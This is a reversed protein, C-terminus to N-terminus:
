QNIFGYNSKGNKKIQYMADDAMGIIEDVRRSSDRIIAIGISVEVSLKEGVDCVFGGKLKDLIQQSVRAPDNTESNRVCIVFEDGGYRGAIGFQEIIENITSATFKLVQDGTAHSYNDNYQKFDDVDVFLIAFENKRVSVLEIENNVLSEVTERNYLGTLADYSARTTLIKESKKARDIDVIVGVVKVIKNDLNKISATRLLVWIYDGYINKWRYESKSLTMGKALRDLDAKYNESDEPHVKCKLLFSDEFSDSPARYSFKKNFNNSFHVENTHFNWEFIINDSMEIITRYRGESVIVDDLLDNFVQAILGYENNSNINIRAEHDGRRIKILTEEIIYLPKTFLIIIIIDFILLFIGLFIVCNVLNSRAKISYTFAKDAEGFTIVSWGTDGANTLFAIRKNRGAEYTFQETGTTFERDVIYEKFESFEPTKIEALNGSYTNDLLQKNSDVLLIRGNIPFASHTFLEKVAHNEFIVVITYKGNLRMKSLLKFDSNNSPNLGTCVYMTHDVTKSYWATTVIDKFVSSTEIVPINNNDYVTINHIDLNSASNTIGEEYLYAKLSSLAAEKALNYNEAEVDTEEDTDDSSKQIYRDYEDIFNLMAVDGSIQMMKRDYYRFLFEVNRSQKQSIESIMTEYQAEAANMTMSSAFIAFFIMSILSFFIIFIMLLSRIKM